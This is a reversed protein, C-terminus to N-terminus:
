TLTGNIFTPVTSEVSEEAILTAWNTYQIMVVKLTGNIFAPVTSQVPEPPWDTYYVAPARLTGNIFM